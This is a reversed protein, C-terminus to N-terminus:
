QRGLTEGDSDVPAIGDPLSQWLRPDFKLWGFEAAKEPLMDFGNYYVTRGEAVQKERVFKLTNLTKGAGNAGTTLYIM